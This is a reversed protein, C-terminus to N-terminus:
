DTFTMPLQRAVATTARQSPTNSSAFIRAKSAYGRTTTLRQDNTTPRRREIELSWHGVVLSWHGIVLSWRGIVLSQRGIVLSWHGRHANDYGSRAAPESGRDDLRTGCRVVDDRERAAVEVDDVRRGNVRRDIADRGVDDDVRR